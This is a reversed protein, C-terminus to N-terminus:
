RQRQVLYRQAVEQHTEAPNNKFEVIREGDLWELFTVLDLEEQNM